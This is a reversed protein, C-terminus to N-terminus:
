GKDGNEISYDRQIDSEFMLEIIGDEYEVVIQGSPAKYIIKAKDLYYSSGGDIITVTEM